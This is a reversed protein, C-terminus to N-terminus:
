EEPKPITQMRQTPLERRGEDGADADPRLSGGCQPCATPPTDGAHEFWYRCAACRILSM